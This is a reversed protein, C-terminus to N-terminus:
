RASAWIVISIISLEVLLAIRILLPHRWLMIYTMAVLVGYVIVPLHDNVGNRLKGRIRIGPLFRIGMYTYSDGLLHLSYGLFVGLSGAVAPMLESQVNIGLFQPMFVKCVDHLPMVYLKVLICPVLFMAFWFVTTTVLGLFTHMFGRHRGARGGFVKSIFKVPRYIALSTVRLVAGRSSGADVDPLLSGYYVMLFFLIISPSLVEAYSWVYSFIFSFVVLTSFAIHVWRRLEM